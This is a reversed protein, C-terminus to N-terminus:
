IERARLRMLARMLAVKAREINIGGTAEKLRLEARIKSEEARKADVEEPWECADCMLKIDDNIINLIGSSTFAKLKKGDKQTFITVSPRLVTVMPVHQPLFGLGGIENETVVEVVEGSYFQKEPTVITLRLINDM